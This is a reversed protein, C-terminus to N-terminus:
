ERQRQMAKAAKIADEAEGRTKPESGEIGLTWRLETLYLLQAPTAPLWRRAPDVVRWPERSRTM